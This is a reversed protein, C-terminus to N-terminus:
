NLTSKRAMGAAGIYGADGGLSAFDVVTRESLEPFARRKVEARVEEIFRSGVEASHGGFDMAGALIVAGPDLIHMMNVVGVGLYRATELIIELSFEDHRSAEEYLMFTSLQEGAALRVSLSSSGGAALAEEARRVVATASTYAELHGKGGCSCARADSNYDIIMHGCEAGLYNEGEILMEDVIIGGGIGTGLTLLAISRYNRGGGIWFEGFAAANADNTYAVPKGTLQTLQQCIPYHHWHPMNGPTLIIGNSVDIPGPTGLGVAELLSLDLQLNDILEFLAVGVRGMADEPGLEEQTAVSTKAVPRGDDDVMGIKINTGGVDVGAFFPSKAQDIPLITPNM